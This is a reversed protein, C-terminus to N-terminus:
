FIWRYGMAVTIGIHIIVVVLMILAFPMHVVHWYKFLQQMRQLTEPLKGRPITGDMCYYDPSIRGIAPFANKRGAWFSLREAENQSVSVSQAGCRDAIARVQSTLEAVEAATGDLEVILLAEASLPYGAQCFDEAAHIAPKDMM